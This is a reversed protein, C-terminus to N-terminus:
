GKITIVSVKVGEEKAYVGVGEYFEEAKKHDEDTKLEDLNGMGKNALGDTCIIVKSGAKGEAAMTVSSLLAPGLATPGSEELQGVMKSLKNFSKGIPQKLHSTRLKKSTSIIFEKDNLRDGAIVKPSSSGDGIVCVDGAFTIVGVKRKPAAIQM